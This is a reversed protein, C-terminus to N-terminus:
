NEDASLAIGHARPEAVFQCNRKRPLGGPCRFGNVRGLSEQFQLSYGAKELFVQAPKPLEPEAIITDPNGTNYARAQKVAVGFDRGSTLTELAIAALTSPSGGSIAAGFFVQDAYARGDYPSYVKEAELDEALVLGDPGTGAVEQPSAVAGGCVILGVIALATTGGSCVLRAVRHGSVRLPSRM